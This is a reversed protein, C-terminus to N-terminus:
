AKRFLMNQIGRVPENAHWEPFGKRLRYSRYGFSYLMSRLDSCTRGVSRQNRDAVECVIAPADPRSLLRRAGEFVMTEAGEVDIKVFDVREVDQEELFDDLTLTPVQVKLQEVDWGALDASASLDGLTNAGDNRPNRTLVATGNRNSLAVPFTRVYKLDNARINKELLKYTEPCPEFCFVRGTPGVLDALLLTLFGANAGIDLVTMGPRVYARFTRLTDAEYDTPRLFYIKQVLGRSLDMEFRYKGFLAPHVEVAPRLLHRWVGRHYPILSALFQVSRNWTM